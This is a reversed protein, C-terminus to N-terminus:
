FFEDDVIIDILDSVTDEEWFCKRGVKKKKHSSTLIPNFGEDESQDTM